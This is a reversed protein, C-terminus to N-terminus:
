KLICIIDEFFIEEMGIIKRIKDQIKDVIEMKHNFNYKMALNLATKGYDIVTYLMNCLEDERTVNIFGRKVLYHVRKLMLEKHEIIFAFSRLDIYHFDKEKVKVLYDLLVMYCSIGYVKNDKYRGAYSTSDEGNRYDEMQNILYKIDFVYNKDNVMYMYIRYLFPKNKKVLAYGKLLTDVDLEKKDFKFNNFNDLSYIKKTYDDYGYIFLPHVMKGYYAEEDGLRFFQDVYLSVYYNQIIMKKVFCYLNDVMETNICYKSIFPCFDFRNVAYHHKGAPLYSIRVENDKEEHLYASTQVFSNIIWDYSTDKRRIISTLFGEEPWTKLIPEDIPLIHRDINKDM